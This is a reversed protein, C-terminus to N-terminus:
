VEERGGRDCMEEMGVRRMAFVVKADWCSWADVWWTGAAVMSMAWNSWNTQAGRGEDSGSQRIGAWVAENLVM